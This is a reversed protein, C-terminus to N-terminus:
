PTAEKKTKQAENYQKVRTALMNLPVIGELVYDGRESPRKRLAAITSSNKLFDKAVPEQQSFDVYAAQPTRLTVLVARHEANNHNVIELQLSDLQLKADSAALAADKTITSVFGRYKLDAEANSMEQSAAKLTNLRESDTRMQQERQRLDQVKSEQVTLTGYVLLSTAIGAILFPTGYTEHFTPM